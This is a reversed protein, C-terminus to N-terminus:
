VGACDEVENVGGACCPFGEERGDVFGIAVGYLGDIHLVPDFLQLM